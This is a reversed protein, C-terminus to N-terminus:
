ICDHFLENGSEWKYEGDNEDEGPRAGDLTRHEVLWGFHRDDASRYLQQASYAMNGRVHLVFFKKGESQSDIM